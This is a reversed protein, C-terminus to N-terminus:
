DEEGIYGKLHLKHNIFEHNGEEDQLYRTTSAMLMVENYESETVEIAEKSVYDIIWYRTV